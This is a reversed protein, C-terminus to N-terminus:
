ATKFVTRAWKSRKKAQTPYCKETHSKLCLMPAYIYCSGMLEIIRWTSKRSVEVTPEAANCGGARDSYSTGSPVLFSFPLFPLLPFIQGDEPCQGHYSLLCLAALLELCAWPWLMSTWM